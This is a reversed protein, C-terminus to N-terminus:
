ADRMVIWGAVLGVGVLGAYAALTAGGPAFLPEGSLAQWLTIAFFGTYGLAAIWVLGVRQGRRLRPFRNTSLLGGILALIQIAHLGFFHPARLDGGETSWGLFPLGAGGDEAGVSHAGVVAMVGTQQAEALQDATPLVMIQGVLGGALTILLGLRLAWALAPQEFRQRMLLMAIILMGGWLVYVFIGMISFLAGDLVTSLNFHSGVGRAAQGSIIALEVLSAVAVMNGAIRAWRQGRLFRLLWLITFTNISLSLAFKLPKIWVPANTVLRDDVFSLGLTIGIMALALFGFLTLWRNTQMFQRLAPATTAAPREAHTAHLM